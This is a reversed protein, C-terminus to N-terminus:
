GIYAVSIALLFQAAYYLPLGVLRNVYANKVFQNRAVFIDSFYFSVAGTLIMVRGLIQTQPNAFVSVATIVMITIIFMYAIVPKKMTGLTPSLWRFIYMGLLSFAVLASFSLASVASFFSFACVYAMHGALFSILGALFMKRSAMFILCVDGILCLILGVLVAQYYVASLATQQMATLVFLVSVVPKCALIGKINEAKEFYLLGGLFVSALLISFFTTM